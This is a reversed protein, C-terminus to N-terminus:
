SSFLLSTTTTQCPQWIMADSWKLFLYMEDFKFLGITVGLLCVKRTAVWETVYIVRVPDVVTIILVLSQLWLTYSVDM